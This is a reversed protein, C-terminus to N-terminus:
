LFQKGLTLVADGLLDTETSLVVSLAAAARQLRAANPQGAESAHTLRM